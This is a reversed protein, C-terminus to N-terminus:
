RVSAMSARFRSLAVAFYVAGILALHALDRWVLDIGAGRFLVAAAFSTFPTSPVLQMTYRIWAPMASLPTLGGSLLSVFVTVPLFLLGLQPMSRAVTGLLVGLASIAFLYCFTGALFLMLSGRIPVGLIGKVVFIVSLFMSVLIAFSNAWVKAVGIDLPSVPMVLLHEVTGRERERILAAGTLVIALMAVMNILQNIAFFWGGNINPNYAIRIVPTVPVAPDAVGLWRNVATQVIQTIYGAGNGAQSMATADVLLQLEPRRGAILDAQFRPPIRLVFTYVGRDLLDDVANNDILVPPKFYPPLLADAIRSSLPTRDQDVIAVSANRTDMVSNKSPVIVFVTFALAMLVLMVRDSKLSLLEKFGLLWINRLRFSKM